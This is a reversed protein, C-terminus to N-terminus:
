VSLSFGEFNPKSEACGDSAMLTTEGVKFSSHMIKNEFGPPVMGPQHPEPSDKFRMMMIVEAGLTRRYFEIAEECKGGFFLYNEIKLPTTSKANNM